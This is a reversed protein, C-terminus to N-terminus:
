GSCIWVSHINLNIMLHKQIKNGMVWLSVVILWIVRATQGRSSPLPLDLCPYKHLLIMKCACAEPLPIKIRDHWIDLGLRCLRAYLFRSLGISLVWCCQMEYWDLIFTAQSPEPCHQWVCSHRRFISPLSSSSWWLRGQSKANFSPKHFCSRASLSSSVFSRIQQHLCTAFPGFSALGDM